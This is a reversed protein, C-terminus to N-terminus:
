IEGQKKDALEMQTEAVDDDGMMGMKMKRRKIAEELRDEAPELSKPPKHSKRQKHDKVM